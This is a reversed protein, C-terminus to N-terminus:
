EERGRERKEMAKKGRLPGFFDSVVQKLPKRRKAGKKKDYSQPKATDCAQPL